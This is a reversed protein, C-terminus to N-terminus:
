SDLDGGSVTECWVVRFRQCIVVTDDDFHGGLRECVSAFYARHGERWSSLSGDGEGEDAAFRADVLRFALQQVATREVIAAPTGNGRLIISVDGPEPLPENLSTFEVPLSCTARKQGAVVLDALEDALSGSEEDGASEGFAFSDPTILNHPHSAPLSALYRRWM